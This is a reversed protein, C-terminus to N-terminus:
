ALELRVGTVGATAGQDANPACDRVPAHDAIMQARASKISGFTLRRVASSSSHAICSLRM